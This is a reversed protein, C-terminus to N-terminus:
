PTNAMETSRTAPTAGARFVVTSKPCFNSAVLMLWIASLAFSVFDQCPMDIGVSLSAHCSRAM